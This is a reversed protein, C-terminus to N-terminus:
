IRDNVSVADQAQERGPLADARILPESPPASVRRASVRRPPNVPESPLGTSCGVGVPKNGSLSGSFFCLEM